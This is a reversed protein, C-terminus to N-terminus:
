EIRKGARGPLGGPLYCLRPELQLQQGVGLGCPPASLGLLGSLQLNQDGTPQHGAHDASPCLGAPVLLSPNFLSIEQQAISALLLQDMAPGCLIIMKM